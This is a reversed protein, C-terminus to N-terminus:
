SGAGATAQEAAGLSRDSVVGQIVDSTKVAAHAWTYQERVVSLARSALRERLDVSQRVRLLKASLDSVDDPRCLLGNSGDEIVESIQGLRTAVVCTGSAMYEFLKIPSFYFQEVERFPAVAVDMARLLSSVREHPVAGTFIVAEEFGMSRAAQRLSDEMPGTGVIVLRASADDQHVRQFAALLVDVGHWAKLSGAFGVVYQGNLGLEARCAERSPAQEFLELDVGNPVVHVRDQSVGKKVLADALPSSVALVADASCLVRREMEEALGQLELSRYKRAEETLIANVELILPVNLARALDLGVHGFLSLREVIAAPRNESLAALALDFVWPNYLLPRLEKAVADGYGRDLMWGKLLKATKNAPPCGHPLLPEAPHDEGPAEHPSLLSVAHGVQALGQTIARLHISAGKTGRPKIGFDSCVYLIRM